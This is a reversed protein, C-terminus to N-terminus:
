AGKLHNDLAENALSDAESNKDRTIHDIKFDTFGSILSKAEKYLDLLKGDKVKYVGNIQRVMLESDSFVQVSKGGLRKGETLAEILAQYEAMNNTTEGIYRKLGDIVHGSGNMVVVGIAAKGPNGRSAGDIYFTLNDTKTHTKSPAEKFQSSAELLLSKLKDCTLSPFRELTRAFSLTEALHKLVDDKKLRQKRGLVIDQSLQSM